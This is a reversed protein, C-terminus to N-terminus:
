IPETKNPTACSAVARSLGGVSLLVGAFRALLGVAESTPLVLHQSRSFSVFSEQWNMERLSQAMIPLVTVLTPFISPGSWSM